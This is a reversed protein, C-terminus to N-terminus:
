VSLQAWVVILNVKQQQRQQQQQEFLFLGKQGQKVILVIMANMTM